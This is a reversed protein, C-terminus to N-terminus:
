SHIKIHIFWVARWVASILIVVATDKRGARQTVTQGVLPSTQLFMWKVFLACIESIHCRRGRRATVQKEEKDSRTAKRFENASRDSVVPERLQLHQIGGRSDWFSFFVSGWKVKGFQINIPLPFFHVQKSCVTYFPKDSSAYDHSLTQQILHEQWCHWEKWM